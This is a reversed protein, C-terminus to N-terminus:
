TVRTLILTESSRMAEMMLTSLIQSSPVVNAIPNSTVALMTGLKSIGEARVFSAISKETVRNKCSGCPTVDGFIANMVAMATFVESRVIVLM